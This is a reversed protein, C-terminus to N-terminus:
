PAFGIPEPMLYALVHATDVVAITCGVGNRDSGIQRKMTTNAEVSLLLPDVRVIVGCHDAHGDGAFDYLVVAGVDPVKTLRNRVQGMVHWSTCAGAATAPIMAGADRYWASVGAACWSSGLPSLVANVYSDIVPSRNSGPPEELLGVDVSARAAITRNLRPTDAPVWRVLGPIATM